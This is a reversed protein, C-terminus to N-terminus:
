QLTPVPERFYMRLLAPLEFANDRVVAIGPPRNRVSDDGQFRRHPQVTRLVRTDMGLKTPRLTRLVQDPRKAISPECDIMLCLVVNYPEGASTPPSAAQPERFRGLIVTLIQVPNGALREITGPRRLRRGEPGIPLDRTEIL